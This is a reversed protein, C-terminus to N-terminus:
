GLHAVTTAVIHAADEGVGFILGSKRTHMLQLGMFYLGPHRSVGQTQQPYGDRLNLELDIWNFDLRFGTSWIVNTIHEADLDLETPANDFSGLPRFPAPPPSRFLM